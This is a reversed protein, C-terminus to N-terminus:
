TDYVDEIESAALKALRIYEDQGDEPPISVGDYKDIIIMPIGDSVKARIYHLKGKHGLWMVELQGHDHVIHTMKHDLLDSVSELAEYFKEMVISHPRQADEVFRRCAKLFYKGHASLINWVSGNTGRAM